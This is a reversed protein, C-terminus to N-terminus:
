LIDLFAGVGEWRLLEGLCNFIPIAVVAYRSYASNITKVRYESEYPLRLRQFENHIRAAKERDDPHVIQMWGMNLVDKSPQGTNLEWRPDIKSLASNSQVYWLIHNPADALIKREEALREHLKDCIEYSPCTDIVRGIIRFSGQRRFRFVCREDRFIIGGFTQWVRSILRKRPFEISVLDGDKIDETVLVTAYDGRKIGEPELYDHNIRQAILHEDPSIGEPECVYVREVGPLYSLKAFM